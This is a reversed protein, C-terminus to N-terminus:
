DARVRIRDSETTMTPMSGGTRRVARRLHGTSVGAQNAATQLDLTGSEYLTMATRMAQQKM